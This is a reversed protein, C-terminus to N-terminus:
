VIDGEGRRSRERLLALGSRGAGLVARRRVVLWLLSVEKRKPLPGEGLELLLRRSELLLPLLPPSM